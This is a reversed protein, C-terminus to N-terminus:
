FPVDDDSIETITQNQAEPQNVIFKAREYLEDFTIIEPNKLSQRFLEFSSFKDENVRDSHVFENLNGIVLFSKPNYLYVQEGTLDGSIKDKIETKTSINEIAKQVTKQIQSLAGSLENSAQWCEPRYPNKVEKLLPTTSTKIEAFCISNILGKTKLLFDVRKGSSNFDYSKIVQEMKKNDISSSFIYNLGYGFIWQNKEFFLQWESESPDNILMLEFEKLSKQRNSQIRALSLKTALDPNIEILEDWIESCYNLKLLKQILEKRDKPVKLIEEADSIFSYKGDRRPVGKGSITYLDTLGDYFKKIENSHFKIKVGEGAKLKTLDISHIDEWEDKLGKRQHLITGSVTEGKEVKTDNIQAVFIRRTTKKEYIIIPEEINAVGRVIHQIHYDSM